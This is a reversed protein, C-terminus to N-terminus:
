DAGSGVAPSRAPGSPPSTPSFREPWAWPPWCCTGSPWPHRAPHTHQRGADFFYGVPVGFLETIAADHAKGWRDVVGDEPRESMRCTGLNHTSPYPPTHHVSVPGAAGHISDAAAYAHERMAADNPHDDFHVDPVPLGWQDKVDPNLTVRNSEQPLDEGVLWMGATREYADM